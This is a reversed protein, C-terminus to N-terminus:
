KANGKPNIKTLTTILISEDTIYEEIQLVVHLNPDIWIKVKNDTTTLKIANTTGFVINKVNEVGENIYSHVKGDLTNIFIYKDKISHILFPTHFYSGSSFIAEYPLSNQESNTNEKGDPTYETNEKSIQISNDKEKIKIKGDYRKKNNLFETETFDILSLNANIKYTKKNLLDKGLGVLFEKKLFRDENIVYGDNDYDMAIEQYGIESGNPKNKIEYYLISSTVRDSLVLKKSDNIIAANEDTSNQCATLATFSLIIILHVWKM